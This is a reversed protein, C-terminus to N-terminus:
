DDAVSFEGPSSPAYKFGARPANWDILRQFGTLSREASQALYEESM